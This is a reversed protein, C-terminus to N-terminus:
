KKILEKVVERDDWKIKKGDAVCIAQENGKGTILILDKERALDIAKKIAEKRDLIKFLNKGMQKGAKEAGLSVQDIIIEPDEDYPDENTIIVFDANEGALQGLIPRRAMDRGGGASGLVHIINKHSINQVTEYLKTLAGPEFAYDVIVLFNQGENIKELRGPVGEIKKLKSKIIDQPINLAYALSFVNMVNTANFKGLLKLKVKEGELEFSIGDDNEINGYNLFKYEKKLEKKKQAYVIKEDAWFSLFYSSYKDDGNVIITKKVKYFDIKKIENKIKIVKKEENLYKPRCRKLHEFLKGKAKKYNEFSGHSEIHEPYLGTFVLIDYNIFRHRFQRIGESTTEIIAVRCNNKLMTKLIRQTFMRGLMTMKKDNLWEKEGDNFMATSTYGTKIGIDNLVKAMLYVSTTKGTTGTVGIVILKNSPFAYFCASFFAFIFHYFPQFIKFIRKPILSKIKYLIKSM